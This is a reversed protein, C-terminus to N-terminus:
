RSKTSPRGKIEETDDRSAKLGQFFLLEADDNNRKTKEATSSQGHRATRGRLLLEELHILYAKVDRQSLFQSATHDKASAANKLTKSASSSIASCFKNAQEGIIDEGLSACGNQLRVSAYVQGYFEEHNITSKSLIKNNFNLVKGQALTSIDTQLNENCKFNAIKCTSKDKFYIVTADQECAIMIESKNEILKVFDLFQNTDVACSILYINSDSEYKQISRFDMMESVLTTCKKADCNNPLNLGIQYVKRLFDSSVNNLVGEDDAFVGIENTTELFCVWATVMVLLNENTQLTDMVTRHDKYIANRLKRAVSKISDDPHGEKPNKAIENVFAFGQLIAYKREQTWENKESIIAIISKLTEVERYLVLLGKTLLLSQEITTKEEQRISPRPFVEGKAALSRIAAIHNEIHCNQLAQAQVAAKQAKQEKFAIQRKKKHTQEMKPETDELPVTQETANRTILREAESRDNRTPEQQSRFAEKSAVPELAEKETTEKEEVTKEKSLGLETLKAQIKDYIETAKNNDDTARNNDNTDLSSAVSEKFNLWDKERAKLLAPYKELESMLGSFKEDTIREKELATLGEQLVANKANNTKGATSVLTQLFNDWTFTDESTDKNKQETLLLKTNPNSHEVNELNKQLKTYREAFCSIIEEQEKINEFIKEIHKLDSLNLELKYLRSKKKRKIQFNFPKELLQTCTYISLLITKQLDRKRDSLERMKTKINNVLIIKEELKKSFITELTEVSTPTTEKLSEPQKEAEVEKYKKEFNMEKDIIGPESKEPPTQTKQKFAKKSPNSKTPSKEFNQITAKLLLLQIIDENGKIKALELLTKAQIGWIKIDINPDAGAEVLTFVATYCQSIIAFCLPTLGEKTRADVNIGSTGLLATIAKAHGYQAAIHLATRGEEDEANINVNGKKLEAEVAEFGKEAALHLATKACGKKEFISNRETHLKYLRSAEQPNADVGISYEYRALARRAMPHGLDVALEYLRFAEQPNAVVGIGREYCRGLNYQADAYGQDAALRYFRFAESEGGISDQYWLGLKNQAKANGQDAAQRQLSLAEEQLNQNGRLNFALDNQADAHGQVAAQRYLKLAEEPNADVGIGTAYCRGLSYQAEALGQEAALTYRKFAKQSNAKVGIGKEYCLALITNIHPSKEQLTNYHQFISNLDGESVDPLEIAKCAAFSYTKKAFYVEIIKNFGAIVDQTIGIGYVQCVGLQLSARLYNPSDPNIADNQMALFEANDKSLNALAKKTFM